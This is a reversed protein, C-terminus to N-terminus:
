YEDDDRLSVPDYENPVSSIIWLDPAFLTFFLLVMDTVRVGGRNYWGFMKRRRPSKSWWRRATASYRCTLCRTVWGNSGKRRGDLGMGDKSKGVYDAEEEAQGHGAMTSGPMTHVATKSRGASGGVAKRLTGGMLKLGGKMRTSAYGRMATVKSSISTIGGASRGVRSDSNRGLPGLGENLAEAAEASRIYEGVADRGGALHLRRTSDENGSKASAEAASQLKAHGMPIFRKSHNLEALRHEVAASM